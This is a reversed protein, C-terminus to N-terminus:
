QVKDLKLPPPYPAEIRWNQPVWRCINLTHSFLQRNSIQDLPFLIHLKCSVSKINNYLM